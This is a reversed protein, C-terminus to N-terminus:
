KQTIPEWLGLVNGEPDSIYAYYGMGHIEMKPMVLKGGKSTVKEIYAEVSDVQIAIVPSKVLESRKMMGGNIAGAEKPMRNEDVPTTCIGVYDMDPMDNLEWGFISYFEKAAAMNDVPIEFHVVQNMVKEKTATM